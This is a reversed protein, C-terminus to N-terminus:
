NQRKIILLSISFAVFGILYNTSEAVVRNEILDNLYITIGLFLIPLFARYLATAAYFGFRSRCKNFRTVFVSLGLYAVLWGGLGLLDFQEIYAIGGVMFWAILSAYGASLGHLLSRLNKRRWLSGTFLSPLSLVLSAMLFVIPLETHM